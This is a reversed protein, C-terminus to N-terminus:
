RASLVPVSASLLQTTAPIHRVWMICRQCKCTATATRVRSTFGARRQVDRGGSECSAGSSDLTVQTRRQTHTHTHTYTPLQWLCTRLPWRATPLTPLPDLERPKHASRSATAPVVLSRGRLWCQSALSILRRRFRRFGTATTSQCARCRSRQCRCMALRSLYWSGPWCPWRTTSCGAQRSLCSSSNGTRASCSGTTAPCFRM